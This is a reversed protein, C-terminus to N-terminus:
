DSYDAQLSIINLSAELDHQELCQVLSSLFRYGKEHDAKKRVSHTIISFIYENYKELIGVVRTYTSYSQLTSYFTIVEEIAADYMDNDIFVRLKALIKKLRIIDKSTITHIINEVIIATLHKRLINIEDIAEQSFGLVFYGRGTKHEVLQESALEALASKIYLRSVSYEEALKIEALHSGKPLDDFLIRKKLNDYVLKAKEHM